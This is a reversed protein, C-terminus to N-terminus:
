DVTSIGSRMGDAHLDPFEGFRQLDRHTLLREASASVQISTSKIPVPMGLHNQHVNESLQCHEFDDPGDGRCLTDSTMAAIAPHKNEGVRQYHRVYRDFIAM